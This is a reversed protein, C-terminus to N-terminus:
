PGMARRRGHRSSYDSEGRLQMAEEVSGTTSMSSFKAMAVQVIRLRAVDAVHRAGWNGAHWREWTPSIGVEERRLRPAGAGAHARETRRDAAQGVTQPVVVLHAVMGSPVIASIPAQQRAWMQSLSALPRCRWEAGSAAALAGANAVM